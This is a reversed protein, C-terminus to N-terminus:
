QDVAGTEWRFFQIMRDPIEVATEGDPIRMQALVTPDTVVWGQVVWSGRDTRYVTPSGTPNSESDKGIFTLRMAPERAHWNGSTAGMTRTAPM